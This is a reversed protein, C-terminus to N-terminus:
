NEIRFRVGIYMERGRTPGWVSSTDFYPSFPNQWSIIPQNQRFDFINECGAYVEFKKFNYTFQANVITYPESFDPRQFEVPNTKTDPLRQKGFWHVNMDFHFKNSMPKYSFTTIVKHKPNFPLLQKAKGVERYVDLYNYGTKFEFRKWIKLYLEAQFGNSVSTGTFNKIIAKTPDTDYDPFIQNQFNTRYYDASFYGSLDGDKLDFKQTLNLGLNVAKEPQLQEAFIIDRSSVLLGINESFLNVTRWGTGVNARIITKPTIDYKVLTRPTFQFGFQNHHDSRVGAIWTLKDDFFRMTNEVFLGPINELRQYKGAYTRHLFTDTFGIDENLNLHRYSIGAKLDNRDYNLEYQINGYFNTQQANYKVTGFYSNQGQHFASAFFVINHKDNFRYGTKTWIEPQNINVSQGYVNTSGKDSKANFSTQGGIRQENFFRLGIRSNWGWDKENGYKWKNFIMYRTLLPLDLFGDKDRDIKNAPQVTHFATLNSWKGQKFAYNANLHKEMFNNMYLNLLLKDTNDPDKTEVNIQGSISEYGQIVSNAGKSVYINDVLTGPISSIGYTYALGQIMPFGDILVQNYVGSLGLIRLEKSNTIVNTTQPQVTTQTEFCGALDCCAAKALETQTIQETKIPKINSIIVGDRQRSIIIEDLTHAEELIFEVFTQNNIEITDASYGVYSAILKKDSIDELSIEFEGKDSTLTGKTTGLWYVNAGSLPNNNNDTVKGKITQASLACPFLFVLFIILKNM